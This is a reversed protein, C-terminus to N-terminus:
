NMTEADDFTSNGSNPKIAKYTKVDVSIQWGYFDKIATTFEMDNTQPAKINGELRALTCSLVCRYVHFKGETSVM